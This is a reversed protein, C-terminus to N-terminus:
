ILREKFTGSLDSRSRKSQLRRKAIASKPPHKLKPNREGKRRTKIACKQRRYRRRHLPQKKPIARSRGRSLPSCTTCRLRRPDSGPRFIGILARRDSADAAQVAVCLLFFREIPGLRYRWLFALEGSLRGPSDSRRLEFIAFAILDSVRRVRDSGLRPIPLPEKRPRPLGTM